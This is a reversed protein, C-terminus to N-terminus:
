KGEVIGNVILNILLDITDAFTAEGVEHKNITLVFLSRILSAIIEPKETFVINKRNAEAILFNIFNEDEAFHENLLEKPLKRLINKIDNNILFNKILNNTEIITIVQELLNKVITKPSDNSSHILNILDARVKQEEKVLITFYLEEKSQFFNYFTGQAIGVSKTIESISTKQFGYKSFLIESQKLLEDRIQEREQENFGRAM